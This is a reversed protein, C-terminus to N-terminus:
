KVSISVVFTEFCSEHLMSKTQMSQKTNNNDDDDDDDDDDDNNNDDDDDDNIAVNAIKSM